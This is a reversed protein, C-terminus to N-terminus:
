QVERIHIPAELKFRLLTEAPIRVARGRTAAQAATGGAGGALLGIAAGKGGGAIAGLIGGLAATGGAFEATRKNKGVGEQGREAIDSTELRHERGNINVSAVDVVIDSQGQFRGQGSASRVVLTAGSGHPIAVNGNSDRIDRAVVGSYTQGPQATESDITSNNRVELTTGAPITLVVPAPAPQAPAPAPQGPASAPQSASADAPPPSGAAPQATSASAAPAQNPQAYQVASVQSMPYTRTEGTSAQLTISSPSSSTVTGSFTSGDQLTVTAQQGSTSVSKGCGWLVLATFAILVKTRM